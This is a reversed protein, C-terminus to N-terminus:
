LCTTAVNVRCSIKDSLVFRMRCNYRKLRFTQISTEHQTLSSFGTRTHDFRRLQIDGNVANGDEVNDASRSSNLPSRVTIEERIGGNSIGPVPSTFEVASHSHTHANEAAERDERRKIVFWSIFYFLTSLVSIFCSLQILVRLCTTAQM